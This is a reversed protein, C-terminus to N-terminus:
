WVLVKHDFGCPCLGAKFYKLLPRFFPTDISESFMIELAAGGILRDPPNFIEHPYTYSGPYYGDPGSYKEDLSIYFDNVQRWHNYIRCRARLDAEVGLLHQEFILREFKTEAVALTGSWSDASSSSSAIYKFDVRRIDNDYISPTGCNAFWPISSLSAVFAEVEDKNPISSM